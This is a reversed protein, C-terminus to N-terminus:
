SLRGKKVAHALREGSNDYLSCLVVDENKSSERLLTTPPLVRDSLDMGHEILLGYSNAMSRGYIEWHSRFLTMERAVSFYGFAAASMLVLFFMAIIFKFTLSIRFRFFSKFLSMSAIPNRQWITGPSKTLGHGVVEASRESSVGEVNERTAM